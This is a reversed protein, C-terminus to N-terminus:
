PGHVFQGRRRFAGGLVIGRVLLNAPAWAAAIVGDDLRDANAELASLTAEKMNEPTMGPDIRVYRLSRFLRDIHDELRYLKRDFCPTVEYVGDGWLFGRDFPSIKAQSEELLEGNLYLVREKSM